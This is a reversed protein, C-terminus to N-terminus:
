SPIIVFVILASLTKGSQCFIFTFSFFFEQIILSWQDTEREKQLRTHKKASTSKVQTNPRARAATVKTNGHSAYEMRIPDATKLCNTHTRALSNTHWRALSFSFICTRLM